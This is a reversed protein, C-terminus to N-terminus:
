ETARASWEPRVGALTCLVDIRTSETDTQGNGFTMVRLSFGKAQYTYGECSAIVPIPMMAITFADKHFMLNQRYATSASGVWTIAATDAPLASVTKNPMTAKIAPYIQLVTTTSGPLIVFQQLDTTASGYATGTLPHVAYVGAITFVQGPNPAAALNAVTLATGTQSAGNVTVGTVDSGNTIAPLNVCEYFKSGQAYGIYGETFEKSIEASPNFIGKNADVLGVNTVDSILSSRQQMPTLYRQLKARQAAVVSMATIPTGPTGVLNPCLKVARAIMDAEVTAALSAIKPRLFRDVWDQKADPINFIKEFTSVNLAVHKRDTTDSFTLAVTKEVTDEASGGEAFTAGTYVTATPPVVINVTQGPKYQRYDTKFDAERARNVNSIFPTNEEFIAAAERALTQFVKIDNAGIRLLHKATGPPMLLAAFIAALALIILLTQM